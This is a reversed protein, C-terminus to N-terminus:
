RMIQVSGRKKTQNNRFDILDIAYFYVGDACPKGQETRGDWNGGKNSFKYIIHGWRNFIFCQFEKICATDFYFLDNMGDNNPTFINPVEIETNCLVEFCKISTDACGTITNTAILKCCFIGTATYTHVIGLNSVGLEIESGDGFDLNYQHYDAIEFSIEVEKNIFTSSINSMFNSIKPKNKIEVTLSNIATNLCGSSFTALATVIFIGTMQYCHFTKNTDRLNDGWNYVYNHYDKSGNFQICSGVCEKLSSATISLSPAVGLSLTILAQSYCNLNAGLLTYTTTISPNVICVSSNINNPLWTYTQAGSAVLTNNGGCSYYFPNSILTPTPTVTVTFQIKNKCGDISNGELTYTETSAPSIVLQTSYSLLPLWTYSNAGYATLTKTAGSCMNLTSDLVSLNPLPNVTVTILQSSTCGNVTGTVTYITTSTPSVVVGGSWTYNSAGSAQLTASQGICISIPVTNITPSPLVLFSVTNTCNNYDSVTVTNVGTQNCVASSSNVGNTWTYTYPSIGGSANITVTSNQCVSPSPLSVVLAPPQNIAFVTYASCGSLTNTVISTWSSASLSNVSASTYTNIGNSWYYNLNGSLSGTFAATGTNVGNCALSPTFNLNGIIPNSIYVTQTLMSIGGGCGFDFTLKVTYTGTSSFTHTPLALTSTNSTGSAIDGFNWLLSQLTYTNAPCNGIIGGILIPSQFQLVQCGMTSSVVSASYAPISGRMFFQNGAFNPLDFGNNGPNLSQVSLSFGAAVAYANPSNIVSLSNNGWGYHSCYIKGNPALQLGSFGNIPSYNPAALSVQTVAVSNNNTSCLDWEILSGNPYYYNNCLTGFLKSADSSFEVGYGSANPAATNSPVVSPATYLPVFNSVLGTSNDFDYIEFSGVNNNYATTFAYNACALKKGNPSIKMQGSRVAFSYDNGYAYTFTSVTPTPNLGTSSLQYAMFSYIGNWGPTNSSSCNKIVVWYDSGNCNATGTLKQCVSGAYVLSNKVTVSGQGGALSMDVISYYLGDTNPTASGTAMLTFIYYLNNNGPKPFIICRNHGQSLLGSGNPMLNFSNTYVNNGNTLFLLNGNADAISSSGNFFPSNSFSTSSLNTPPNSAFDLICNSGFFWKQAQNQSFFLFFSICFILSLYYRKYHNM